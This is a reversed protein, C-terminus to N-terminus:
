SVPLVKKAEKCTVGSVTSKAATVRVEQVQEGDANLHFQATFSGERAAMIAAKAFPPNEYVFEITLKRNAACAPNTSSVKGTLTWVIATEGIQRTKTKFAISTTAQTRASAGSAFAALAVLVVLVTGIKRM